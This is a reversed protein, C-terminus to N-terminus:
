ARRNRELEGAERRSRRACDDPTAAKPAEAAFSSPWPCGEARFQEAAHGAVDSLRLHRPWHFSAGTEVSKITTHNADAFVRKSM